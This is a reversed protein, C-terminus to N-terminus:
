VGHTRSQQVPRDLAQRLAPEIDPFSFPYSISAAVGPHARRGHLLLDAREGLLLRLLVSPARLRAPRRLVRGMVAALEAQRVAGPAVANLPGRVTDDELARRYLGIIDDLHIWAFWQHGGGLPGGGMLRFPLAMLRLTLADRAVVVGTRMVVTRVGFVEAELAAAEWETCLRALFSSGPTSSEDVEEDGRDGYYDIGSASVLTGPRHGAPTRGLATVLAATPDLRSSRLEAQRRKTWRRRGINEGALNVVADAGELAATWSRDEGAPDWHIWEPADGSAARAPRRTLVAVRHGDALLAATLHFGIFGTGGAVIVRKPVRGTAPSSRTM